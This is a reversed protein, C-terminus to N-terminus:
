KTSYSQIYMKAFWAPDHYILVHNIVVRRGREKVAAWLFRGFGNRPAFFLTKKLLIVSYSGRSRLPMALMQWRYVEHTLLTRAGQQRRKNRQKERERQRARATQEWWTKGRASQLTKESASGRATPPTPPNHNYIIYGYSPFSILWSTYDPPIPCEKMAWTFYDWIYTPCVGTFIM